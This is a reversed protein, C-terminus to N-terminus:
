DTWKRNTKQENKYKYKRLWKIFQKDSMQALWERNTM